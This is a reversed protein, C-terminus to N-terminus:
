QHLTYVPCIKQREIMMMLNRLRINGWKSTNKYGIWCAVHHLLSPLPPDVPCFVKQLKTVKNLKELLVGRQGVMLKIRICLEFYAPPYRIHIISAKGM